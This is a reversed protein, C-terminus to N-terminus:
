PGLELSKPALTISARVSKASKHLPHIATKNPIVIDVCPEFESQGIGSRSRRELEDNPSLRCCACCGLLKENEEHAKLYPRSACTHWISHVENKSRKLERVNSPARRYQTKTRGHCASGQICATESCRASVRHRKSPYRQM